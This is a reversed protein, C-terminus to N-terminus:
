VGSLCFLVAGGGRDAFARLLGALVLPEEGLREGDLGANEATGVSFSGAEEHSGRAVHLLSLQLFLALLDPSVRRISELQERSQWQVIRSEQSSM